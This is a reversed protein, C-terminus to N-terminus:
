SSAGCQDLERALIQRVQDRPFPALQHSRKGSTLRDAACSCLDHRLEYEWGEGVGGRICAAIVMTRYRRIEAAEIQHRLAGPRAEPWCEQTGYYSRSHFETDTATALQDDSLNGVVRDAACLCVLGFGGRPLRAEPQKRLEMACGAFALERVDKRNLPPEAPVSCATASAFQLLLLGIFPGRM